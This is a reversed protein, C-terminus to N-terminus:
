PQQQGAGPQYHQASAAQGHAQRQDQGKGQEGAQTAGPGQAQHGPCRLPRVLGPQPQGVVQQQHAQGLFQQETAIDLAAQLTQELM